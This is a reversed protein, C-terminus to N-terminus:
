AVHVFEDVFEGAAFLEFVDEARLAPNVGGGLSVVVVLVPRAGAQLIACGM